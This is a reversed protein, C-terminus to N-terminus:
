QKMAELVANKIDKMGWVNPHGSTKHIKRFTVPICDYRKCAEKMCDTVADKLGTNILCYIKANPFTERALSIFCCIAPLVNYLESEEWDSFKPEGLPVNAWNDNTGGFIFVTDIEKDAFFGEAILTRLRYIFSSTASCDSNNYGTYCIPSGSWSNNMVLNLGLESCLMHWWTQTVDIVGTGGRGGEIKHTYYTACNKAIHGSFTSYSDGFIIANKHM